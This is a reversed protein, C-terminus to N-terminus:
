LSKCAVIMRATSEYIWLYISIYLKFDHVWSVTSLSWLRLVVLITLSTDEHWSEQRACTFFFPRQTLTCTMTFSRDNWCLFNCHMMMIINGGCTHFKLTEPGIISFAIGALIYWHKCSLLSVNIGILTEQRNTIIFLHTDTLCYNIKKSVRKFQKICVMSMFKSLMFTFRIIRLCLLESFQGQSPIRYVNNVVCVKSYYILLKNM